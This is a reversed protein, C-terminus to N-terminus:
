SNIENYKKLLEQDIFDDKSGGHRYDNFSTKSFGFEKKALDAPIDNSLLKFRQCANIYMMAKKAHGNKKGPIKLLEDIVKHLRDLIIQEHKPANVYSIFSTPKAEEKPTSSMSKQVPEIELQMFSDDEGQLLLELHKIKSEWEGASNLMVRSCSSPIIEIKIKISEKM